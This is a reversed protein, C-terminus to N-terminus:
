PSLVKTILSILDFQSFIGSFKEPKHSFYNWVIKEFLNVDNVMDLIEYNM